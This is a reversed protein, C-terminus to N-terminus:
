KNYYTRSSILDLIRINKLVSLFLSAALYM